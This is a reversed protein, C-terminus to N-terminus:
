ACLREERPLACMVAEIEGTDDHRNVRVIGDVYLQELHLRVQEATLTLAECLDPLATWVAGVSELKLLMSVIVDSSIQGPEAENFLASKVEEIEGTAHHRKVRVIGDVFLQEVHHRAVEIPLQLDNALLEISQWEDGTKDLRWLVCAIVGYSLHQNM